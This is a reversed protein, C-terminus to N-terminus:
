RGRLHDILAGADRFDPILVDAGAATLQQRKIPDIVGSGNHDEDSCVAVAVGGLEKTTQLEVGGDGFSLLHAGTLQEATMLRDFVKRKSFQFPDPTSGYIHGGFYGTLGLVEAEEKVRHEITGSLIILTLGDDRLKELLARGGFVVYDDPRAHGNRIEGTRAAIEADLRSQYEHLLAEPGPPQGGRARAEEHFRIMQRITPQGNMGLTIGHLLADVAEDNEDPSRPLHRRFIEMMVAPWGHRLWSLTGDFDFVVHSIEPRASLNGTFEVPGSYNSLVSV